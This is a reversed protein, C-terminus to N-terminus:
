DVCVRKLDLAMHLNMDVLLTGEQCFASIFKSRSTGYYSSGYSRWELFESQLIMEDFKAQTIFHYQYGEQDEPWQPRTTYRVLQSFSPRIILSGIATGKGVGSPGLILCVVVKDLFPRIIDVEYDYFPTGGAKSM